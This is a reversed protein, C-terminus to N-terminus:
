RVPSASRSTSTPISADRIWRTRSPDVVVDVVRGGFRRHVFQEGRVAHVSREREVRARAFGALVDLTEDGSV